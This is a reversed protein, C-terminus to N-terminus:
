QHKLIYEKLKQYTDDDICHEILCAQDDAKKPDVGISIFFDKILNDKELTFVALDRGKDTLTIYGKDSIIIFGEDVLKKMAISVSPKSFGLQNAIDISRVYEKSEQLVLITKLYNERSENAQM